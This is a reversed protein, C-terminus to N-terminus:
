LVFEFVYPDTLFALGDNEIPKGSGDFYDYHSGAGVNFKVTNGLNADKPNLYLSALKIDHAALDTQNWDNPDGLLVTAGTGQPNVAGKGGTGDLNTTSPTYGGTTFLSKTEGKFTTTALMRANSTYTGDSNMFYSNSYNGSDDRFGNTIVDFNTAWAEDPTIVVEWTKMKKHNTTTLLEDDLFIGIEIKSASSSGIKELYLIPKAIVATGSGNVVEAAGQNDTFEAVARIKTTKNSVDSAAITYTTNTTSATGATGSINTWTSNSSDTSIEWHYKIGGSPIGDADTIGSGNATLTAGVHNGGTMAFTGAPAQNATVEVVTGNADKLYSIFKDNGTYAKGQGDTYSATYRIQSADSLNGNGDFDADAAVLTYTKSNAGSIDSWNAGDDKSRQWQHTVSGMGDLDAIDTVSLTTGTRATGSMVGGTTPNDGIALTTQIKQVHTSGNYVGLDSVDMSIHVGESSSTVFKSLINNKAWANLNYSSSLNTFFKTVMAEMIAVGGNNNFNGDNGVSYSNPSPNAVSVTVDSNGSRPTYSISIPDGGDFIFETSTTSTAKFTSKTSAKIQGEGSSITSDLGETITVTTTNATTDDSSPLSALSLALTLDAKETLLDQVTKLRFKQGLDITMTSGSMTYTADPSTSTSITTSAGSNNNTIAWDVTTGDTLTFNKTAATSTSATTTSSEEGKAAEVEAKAEAKATAVDDATKMTFKASGSGPAAKEATVAAAAEEGSKVALKAIAGLETADFSTIADAADNVTKIQAKATALVANNANVAATVAAADFGAEQLKTTLVTETKTVVKDIISSDALDAKAGAASQEKVVDGVAEIATAFAKTADLGSSKASAQITSVTTYVKLAVKEAALAVTKDAESLNEAFPNFNLVDMEAPLGLVEKVATESLGTEAVLTTVPTVVTSNSPAKLVLDAVAGGTNTDVTGTTYTTGGITQGATISTIVLKDTASVASTPTISASGTSSTVAFEEGDDHVGDGDRDVFALANSLPGKIASINLPAISDSSGGFNCASLVSALTIFSANRANKASIEKKISSKIKNTFSDDYKNDLSVKGETNFDLM